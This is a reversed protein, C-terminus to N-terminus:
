EKGGKKTDRGQKEDEGNATNEVIGSPAMDCATKDEDLVAQLGAIDKELQKELEDNFKDLDFDAISLDELLNELDEGPINLGRENLKDISDIVDELDAIVESRIRKKM